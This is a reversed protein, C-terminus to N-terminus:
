RRARASSGRSPAACPWASAGRGCRCGASTASARSSSASSRCRCTTAMGSPSPSRSSSSLVCAMGLEIFPTISKAARVEQEVLDRAVKERVGHRRAVFETERGALAELVARTQNICSALASPCSSRFGSSRRGSSRGARVQTAVCSRSRASPAQHFSAISMTAASSCRAPRDDLVRTGATIAACRSPRAPAHRLSLVVLLPYALNNTLHFFTKPRRRSRPTRALITPLLKRAM